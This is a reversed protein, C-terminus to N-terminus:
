KEGVEREMVCLHSEEGGKGRAHEGYTGTGLFVRDGAREVQGDDNVALFEGCADFRHRPAYGDKGRPLVVRLKECVIREDEQRSSLSRILTQKLVVLRM